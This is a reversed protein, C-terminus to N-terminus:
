HNKGLRQVASILCQNLYIQKGIKGAPLRM